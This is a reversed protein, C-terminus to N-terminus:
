ELTALTAAGATRSINERVINCSGRGGRRQEYMTLAGQDLRSRVKPRGSPAVYKPPQGHVEYTWQM